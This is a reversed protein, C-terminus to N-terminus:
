ATNLPLLTASYEAKELIQDRTQVTINSSSVGMRIHPYIRNEDNPTMFEYQRISEQLNTMFRKAEAEDTQPLLMAFGDTGYRAAIKSSVSYQMLIGALHQFLFDACASNYAQGIVSLDSVGIVMFSTPVGSQKSRKIEQDLQNLLYHENYLGTLSDTIGIAGFRQIREARDLLVATQNAIVQLLRFDEESLAFPKSHSLSIVGLVRKGIQIPAAMFCGVQKREGEKAFLRREKSLDPVFIQRRRSAVWGAMGNGKEFEISQIFNIERGDVQAPEFRGNSRNLMHISCDDFSICERTLAIVKQIIETDSLDLAILKNLEYLMHTQGLDRTQSRVDEIHEVLATIYPNLAELQERIAVLSERGTDSYLAVAGLVREPTRLLAMAQNTPPTHADAAADAHSTLMPSLARSVKSLWQNEHDSGQPLSLRKNQIQRAVAGTAARVTMGSNASGTLWLAGGEAQTELVLTDVIRKYVTENTEQICLKLLESAQKFVVSEDKTTKYVTMLERYATRLERQSDELTELSDEFREITAVSSKAGTFQPAHRISFLLGIGLLCVAHLWHVVAIAQHAPTAMLATSLVLASSLLSTAGVSVRGNAASLWIIPMFLWFFEGRPDFRLIFLTLAGLDAATEIANCLGDKMGKRELVFFFFSYIGILATLMRILDIQDPDYFSVFLLMGLAIIVRGILIWLGNQEEVEELTQEEQEDM